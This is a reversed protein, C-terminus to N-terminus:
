RHQLFTAWVYPDLTYRGPVAGETPIHHDQLVQGLFLPLHAGVEAGQGRCGSRQVGVEVGQGRCGSRQM